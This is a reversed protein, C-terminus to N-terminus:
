VIRASWKNRGHKIVRDIEFRLDKEACTVRLGEGDPSINIGFAKVVQAKGGFWNIYNKEEIQRLADEATGYNGYKLEIICNGEDSMLVIDSRGNGTYLEPISFRSGMFSIMGILITQYYKEKYPNDLEDVRLDRPILSIIKTLRAGLDAVCYSDSFLQNLTNKVFHQGDYPKITKKSAIVHEIKLNLSLDNKDIVCKVVFPPIKVSITSKKQSDKCVPLNTLDDLNYNALCMLVQYFLASKLRVLFQRQYEEKNQGEPAKWSPSFFHAALQRHWGTITGTFETIERGEKEICIADQAAVLCAICDRCVNPAAVTAKQPSQGVAVDVKVARFKEPSHGSGHAAARKGAHMPTTFRDDMAFINSWSLFGLLLSLVVGCYRDNCKM